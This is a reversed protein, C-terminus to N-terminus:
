VDTDPKGPDKVYVGRKQDAGIEGLFKEGKEGGIKSLGKAERVEDVKVAPSIDVDTLASIDIANKIKIKPIDIKLQLWKNAVEFITSWVKTELDLQAPRIVTNQKIELIKSLFGSGKGLTSSSLIGALVADWQNALIIKQTWLNDSETYSGEKHTELNHLDSGELGEESSLVMVRGRKGDGTHTAIARKGIKDTETQSLNGKLLLLASVVMNNDLNDLNFRAGKYELVEYILGAVSSPLGYYNFGAVRNKYWILTRETGNKDKIWNENEARAPNYIPLKKLKKFDEPLIVSNRKSFLKSHIAHTIIDDENPRCLRWELFNHVYIFLKKTSGVQVKVIEIPTNGFTFFSEFIQKNIEIVAEGHLNMSKFWDTVDSPIPSDDEYRFNSGACFDKKTVICANHTNSLLRSELLLQAYDDKGELFPLYEVSDVYSFGIGGEFPIPTSASLESRNSISTTSKGPKAPKVPGSQFDNKTRKRTAM